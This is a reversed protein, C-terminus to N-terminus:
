TGQKLVRKLLRMAMQVCLGTFLGAISGAAILVPLYVAVYLTRTLIVAVLIQGVNHAMAGGISCLWIQKRLLKKLLLMTGLCFVGGVFSYLLSILRGSLIGGLLIRVLLIAAADAPQLAYVAFLTVINALGLKVGPIPVPPPLQAEVMFITLAIGSFLADYVMRKTKTLKM